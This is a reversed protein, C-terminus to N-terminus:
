QAMRVDQLVLLVVVEGGFFPKEGGRVEKGKRNIKAGGAYVM